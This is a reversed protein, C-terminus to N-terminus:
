PALSTLPYSSPHTLRFHVLSIDLFNCVHYSLASADIFYRLACSFYQLVAASLKLRWGFANKLRWAQAKLRVKNELTKNTVFRQLIRVESM